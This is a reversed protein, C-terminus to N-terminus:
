AAQPLVNPELEKKGSRQRDKRSLARRAAVGPGPATTLSATWQLRGRALINRAANIDPGAKQGCVSLLLLAARVLSQRDNHLRM